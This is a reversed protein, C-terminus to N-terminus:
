IVAVWANVGFRNTWYTNDICMYQCLVRMVREFYRATLAISREWKGVTGKSYHVDRIRCVSEELHRDMPFGFPWPSWDM